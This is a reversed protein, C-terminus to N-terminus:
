IFYYIFISPHVIEDGLSLIKEDTKKSAQRGMRRFM